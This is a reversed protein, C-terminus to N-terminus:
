MLKDSNLRSASELKDFRRAIWIGREDRRVSSWPERQIPLFKEVNM